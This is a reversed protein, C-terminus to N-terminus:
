EVSSDVSNRVSFFFTTEHKVDQTSPHFLSYVCCVCEVAVCISFRINLTFFNVIKLENPVNIVQTDTDQNPLTFSETRQKHAEINFTRERRLRDL